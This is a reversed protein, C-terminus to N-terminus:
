RRKSGQRRPVKGPPSLGPQRLRWIKLFGNRADHRIDDRHSLEIVEDM